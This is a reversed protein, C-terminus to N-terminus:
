WSLTTLWVVMESWPALEVVMLFGDVVVMVFCPVMGAVMVSALSIWHTIPLRPTAISEIPKEVYLGKMYIM